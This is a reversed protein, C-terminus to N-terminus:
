KLVQAARQSAPGNPNPTGTGAGIGFDVPQYDPFLTSPELGPHRSAQQTYRQRIKGLEGLARTQQTQLANVMDRVTQPSLSGKGEVLANWEGAAKQSLPLMERLQAITNGRVSAGPNFTRLMNDILGFQAQANGNLADRALVSAGGITQLQGEYHQVNKDAQYLHQLNNGATETIREQALPDEAGVPKGDPGIVPTAQGNKTVRMLVRQGNVTGAQFSPQGGELGIMMQSLGGLAGANGSAVLGPVLSTLWSRIGEPNAQDGTPMPHDSLAQQLAQRQKAQYVYNNLAMAQEAAQPLMQAWGQQTAGLAGGLDSLVNGTGAPRPGGARLLNTGLGLLAQNRLAKLQDPQLVSSLPGGPLLRSTIRDWFSPGSAVPSGPAVSPGAQQVATVPLSQGSIAGSMGLPVMQAGAYDASTAPLDSPM